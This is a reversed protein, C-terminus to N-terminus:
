LAAVAEDIAADVRDRDTVDAAIAVADLGHASIVQALTDASRGVLVLRAGEAAFLRAAELGVGSSAGTILVRRGALRRSPHDGSASSMDPTRAHPGEPKNLRPARARGPVADSM